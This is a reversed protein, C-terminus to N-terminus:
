GQRHFVASLEEFELTLTDGEVLALDESDAFKLLCGDQAQKWTGPTEEGAITLVTQGDEHLELSFAMGLEALQALEASNVTDQGTDLSEM